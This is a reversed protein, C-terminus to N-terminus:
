SKGGLSERVRLKAAIFDQHSVWFLKAIERVSELEVMSLGEEAFGVAFLLEVVHIRVAYPHKNVERTLGQIDHRSELAEHAAAIVLSTESASAGQSRLIRAIAAEEEKSLNEDSRAVRTLLAGLIVLEELRWRKALELDKLAAPLRIPRPTLKEEQARKVSARLLRNLFGAIM